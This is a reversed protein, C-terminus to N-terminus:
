KLDIIKKLKSDDGWFSMPEYDSYPYYGLNLRIQCGKEKLYEQVIDKIKVPKGSCCNIIGEVKNQLSVRVINEAVTEVPLYDRVQEGGSMNFVEANNLIATELQSFLSTPSQGKGYMYFLRIWKFHFYTESCLEQLLGRLNNKAIAYANEPKCPMDESLCGEQMGYEFCTGTVTIDDLGNKVMNKLFLFHRPLNVELHHISKYNPLGEWALHILIDPRGFYEYYNQERDLKELNFERFCVKGFWDYRSAKQIDTGAAVISFGQGTLQSIVHNGIFGSAGTVLIKKM